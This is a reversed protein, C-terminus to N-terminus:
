RGLGTALRHLPDFRQPWWRLLHMAVYVILTSVLIPHSQRYRNMAESLLEECRIEYVTVGLVLTLWAKDASRM